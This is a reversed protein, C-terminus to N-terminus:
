WPSLPAFYIPSTVALVKSRGSLSDDARLSVYFASLTLYSMRVSSNKISMALFPVFSSCREESMIAESNKHTSPLFPTHLFIWTSLSKSSRSFYQGLSGLVPSFRRFISTTLMAIGSLTLSPNFNILSPTGWTSVNLKCKNTWVLCNVAKLKCWENVGNLDCGWKVDQVKCM